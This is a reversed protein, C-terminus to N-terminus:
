GRFPHGFLFVPGFFRVLWQFKQRNGIPVRVHGEVRQHLTQVEAVVVSCSEFGRVEAERSDGHGKLPTM